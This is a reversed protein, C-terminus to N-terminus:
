RANKTEDKVVIKCRVDNLVQAIHKNTPDFRLAEKFDACAENLENLYMRAVGRKVLISSLTFFTWRKIEEVDNRVKLSGHQFLPTLLGLSDTNTSTSSNVDESTSTEENAYKQAAHPLQYGEQTLTKKLMDIASTSDSVCMQYQKQQLYCAGRNAHSLVLTSDKDIASNYCAIAEEFKKAKFHQDGKDQQFIPLENVVDSTKTSDLLHSRNAKLQVDQERSERAPLHLPITKESFRIPISTSQRPAPIITQELNTSTEFNSKASISDSDKKSPICQLQTRVDLLNTAYSEQLITKVESSGNSRSGDKVDKRQALKVEQEHYNTKQWDELEKREVELEETKRAEIVQRKVDECDIQKGVVFRGLESADAKAKTKAKETELAFAELSSQRRQALVKKDGLATLRGWIGQDKKVLFFSVYNRGISVSSKKSNIEKHLDVQFLYPFCTIRLFCETSTIDSSNPTVFGFNVDVTVWTNSERWKYTPTIPM